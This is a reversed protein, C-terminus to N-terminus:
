SPTAFEVTLQTHGWVRWANGHLKFVFIASEVRPPFPPGTIKQLRRTVKTVLFGDTQALIVIDRISIELRNTALARRV